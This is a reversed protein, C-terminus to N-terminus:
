NMMIMVAAAASSCPIIIEEGMMAVMPFISMPCHMMLLKHMRECKMMERLVAM